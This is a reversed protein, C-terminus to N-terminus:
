ENATVRGVGVPGGTVNYGYYVGVLVVFTAMFMGKLAEYDVQVCVIGRDAADDDTGDHGHKEGDEGIYSADLRDPLVTDAQITGVQWTRGIADTLHFELKPAYFAGEGPLEEWGYEPTDRGAARVADRLSQEAWDWMADSGFRKDPRLALKIAYSEFGLDRVFEGFTAQVVASSRGPQNADAIRARVHGVIPSQEGGERRPCAGIRRDDQHISGSDAGGIIVSLIVGIRQLVDRESKRLLDPGHADDVAGLRPQVRRLHAAQAEVLVLPVRQGRVVLHHLHEGGLPRPVRGVARDADFEAVHLGDAEVVVALM